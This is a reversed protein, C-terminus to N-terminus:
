VCSWRCLTVRYGLYELKNIRYTEPFNLQSLGWPVGFVPPTIQNPL